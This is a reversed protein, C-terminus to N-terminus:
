KRGQAIEIRNLARKLKIEAVEVTHLETPNEIYKEAVKQAAKAREIDIEDAWECTGTIITTGGKKDVKIIGESIAALKQEGEPLVIKLRGISLPAVYNEHGKLIGIEGEVTRVAISTVEGDFVKRDFTMVTLHYTAM